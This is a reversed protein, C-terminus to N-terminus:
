CVQPWGNIERSIVSNLTIKYSGDEVWDGMLSYLIGEARQFKNDFLVTIMTAFM